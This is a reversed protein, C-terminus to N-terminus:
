VKIGIFSRDGGGSSEAWGMKGAMVVLDEMTWVTETKKKKSKNKGLQNCYSIGLEQTRQTCGNELAVVMTDSTSLEGMVRFGNGWVRCDRVKETPRIIGSSSVVRSTGKEVEM